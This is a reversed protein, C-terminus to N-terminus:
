FGVFFMFLFGISVLVLLIYLAADEAAMDELLKERKDPDAISGIVEFIPEFYEYFIAIIIIAVVVIFLSTWSLLEM